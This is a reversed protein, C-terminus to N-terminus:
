KKIENIEGRYKEILKYLDDNISGISKFKIPEIKGFLHRHDGSGHGNDYRIIENWEIGNWVRFNFSYKFGHPHNKDKKIKWVSVDIKEDFALERIESILLEAM